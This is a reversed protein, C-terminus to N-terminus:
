VNARFKNRLILGPIIYGTLIAASYVLLFEIDSFWPSILAAIWFTAAGLLLPTFRIIAGSVFTALGVIMLIYPTPNVKHAISVFIVTFLAFGFGMWLQAYIRDFHTKIMQTKSKRKEYIVAIPVGIATMVLWVLNSKPGLGMKLMTYQAISALIILIGWLIFHFGSENVKHRAMAIMQQVVELNQQAKEKEM